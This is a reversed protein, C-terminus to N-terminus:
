GLEPDNDSVSLYINNGSGPAGKADKVKMDFGTPPNLKDALWQGINMLEPSGGEVYISSKGKLEFIGKGTTVSVPKPILVAESLGTVATDTTAYRDNCSILYVLSVIIGYIM